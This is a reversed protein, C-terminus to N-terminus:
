IQILRVQYFIFRYPFVLLFILLANRLIKVDNVIWGQFKGHNNSKAYDFFSSPKEGVRISEEIEENNAFSNTREVSNRETSNTESGGAYHTNQTYKRWTRFANIIVPICNTVVSEYPVVHIYYRWGIFFLIAGISVMSLAFIYFVLYNEAHSIYTEALTEFISALNIVAVFKDIYRSTRRFEQIQDGGM